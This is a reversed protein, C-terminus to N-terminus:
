AKPHHEGRLQMWAKFAPREKLASLWREIEPYPQLSIKLAATINVVSAVNLDALTVRDGVLYTKGVLIQNLMQLKPPIAALARDVVKQDRAEPPTFMKQIVIDIMPPQLEVQSWTSWQMTEAREIPGQGLLEPRYNEALYWNIAISEWVVAQGDVMVPVKGNPNLALYAELKHERKELMDIPMSEYPIGIELLTLYCRGASTRPHGYIQIM